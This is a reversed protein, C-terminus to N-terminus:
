ILSFLRDLKKDKKCNTFFRHFKVAQMKSIQAKQTYGM